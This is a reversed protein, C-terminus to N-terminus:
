TQEKIVPRALVIDILTKQTRANRDGSLWAKVWATDSKLQQWREEAWQREQASVAEDNIVQKAVADNIDAVSRLREVLRVRQERAVAAAQTQQDATSYIVRWLEAHEAAAKVDGKSFASVWAPDAKIAELRAAATEPTLAVPTVSPPPGAALDLIAPAAAAETIM